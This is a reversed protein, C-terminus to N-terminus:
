GCDPLGLLQDPSEGDSQSKLYRKGLGQAAVIDVRHGHPWEIYFVAREDDIATIAAEETLRWRLGDPGLGGISRIRHYPSSRDAREICDVRIGRRMTQAQRVDKHAEM